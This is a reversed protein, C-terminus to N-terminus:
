VRLEEPILQEPVEVLELWPLERILGVAHGRPAPHELAVGPLGREEIPDRALAPLDVEIPDSAQDGVGGVLRELLLPARHLALVLLAQALAEPVLAAELQVRAEEDVGLDLADVLVLSLVEVDQVDHRQVEAHLRIRRLDRRSDRAREQEGALRSGPVLGGLL